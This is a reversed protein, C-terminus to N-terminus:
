HPFPCGTAPGAVWAPSRQEVMTLTAQGSRPVGSLLDLAANIQAKAFGSAPCRRPGLGFPLFWGGPSDVGWRAVDFDDARDWHARNRHVLWPSVVVTDGIEFPLRPSREVITRGVMFGPPYLRLVENLFYRSRSRPADLHTLASLTAATTSGWGSLVMARLERAIGHDSVDVGRLATLFGSESGAVLDELFKQFDDRDDTGGRLTVRELHDWTDFVLARLRDGPLSGPAQGTLQTLMSASFAETLVGAELSVPVPLAAQLHLWSGQRDRAATALAAVLQRKVTAVSEGTLAGVGGLYRQGAVPRSKVGATSTLFAASIDGDAILWGPKGGFTGRALPARLTEGFMSLQAFLEPRQALALSPLAFEPAPATM